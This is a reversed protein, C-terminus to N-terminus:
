DGIKICPEKIKEGGCLPRRSGRFEIWGRWNDKNTREYCYANDTSCDYPAYSEIKHGTLQYIKGAYKKGDKRGVMLFLFHYDQESWYSHIVAAEYGAFEARIGTGYSFLEPAFVNTVQLQSVVLVLALLPLLKKM